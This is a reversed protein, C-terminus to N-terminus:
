SRAADAKRRNERIIEEVEEFQPDNKFMGAMALWPHATAPSTKNVGNSKQMEDDKPEIEPVDKWAAADTRSVSSVSIEVVRAGHSIREALGEQLRVSAAEPTDGEGTIGFASARFGNGEVREVLAQVFQPERSAMSAM